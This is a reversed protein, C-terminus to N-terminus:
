PGPSLRKMSSFRWKSFGIAMESRTSSSRSRHIWHARQVLNADSTAPSACISKAPRPSFTSTAVKGVSGNEEYKLPLM